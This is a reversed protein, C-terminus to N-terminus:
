WYTDILNVYRLAVDRVAIYALTPETTIDVV